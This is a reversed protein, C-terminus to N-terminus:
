VDANTVCPATSCLFKADFLEAFADVIGRESIASSSTQEVPTGLRRKGRFLAESLSDYAIREGGAGGEFCPISAQLLVTGGSRLLACGVLKGGNLADVIDARTAVAFCDGPAIRDVECTGVAAPAGVSRFASIFARSIAGYIEVISADRRGVIAEIRAAVAVTLDWGHLVGRGGTPRRIVPIDCRRCADQDLSREPDQNRGITIAPRDWRYLHLTPPSGSAAEDFLARDIPM